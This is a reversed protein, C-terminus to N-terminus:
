KNYRLVRAADKAGRKTWFRVGPTWSPGGEYHSCIVKWKFTRWDWAVIAKMTKGSAGVCSLYEM